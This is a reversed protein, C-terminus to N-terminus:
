MTNRQLTLALILVIVFAIFGICIAAQELIVEVLPVRLYAFRGCEPRCSLGTANLDQFFGEDCEIPQDDSSNAQNSSGDDM